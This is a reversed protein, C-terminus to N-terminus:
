KSPELKSKIHKCIGGKARRSGLCSCRWKETNPNYNVNYKAGNSGTVEFKITDLKKPQPKIWIIDDLTTQLHVEQWTPVIYKKGSIIVLSPSLHGEYQYRFMTVHCYKINQQKPNVIYAKESYDLEDSTTGDDFLKQVKFLM